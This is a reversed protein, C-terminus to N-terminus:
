KGKKLEKIIQAKKKNEEVLEVNRKYIAQLASYIHEVLKDIRKELTTITGLEKM